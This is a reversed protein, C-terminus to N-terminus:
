LWCSRVVPLKLYVGLFRELEEQWVPWEGCGSCTHFEYCFPNGPLTSLYKHIQADAGRECSQNEGASCYIGPLKRSQAFAERALDEADCLRGPLPSSLAFGAKVPSFSGIAGFLEPQSLGMMLAAYGGEGGGAIYNDERNPSLCLFMERIIRPLEGTVYDAFRDCRSMNTPFFDSGDPMVAAIHYREAVREVATNRLWAGSDEGAGHLLYLTKRPTSDHENPYAVRIQTDMGLIESYFHLEIIAM